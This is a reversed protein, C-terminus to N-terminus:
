RRRGTLGAQKGGEEEARTSVLHLHSRRFRGALNRWSVRDVSMRCAKPVKRMSSAAIITVILPLSGLGSNFSPGCRVTCCPSCRPALVGVIVWIRVLPILELLAQLLKAIGFLSGTDKVPLSGPRSQRLSM